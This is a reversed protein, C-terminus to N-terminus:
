TFIINNKYGEVLLMKADNIGYIFLFLGLYFASRWRGWSGTNLVEMRDPVVEWLGRVGGSPRGAM